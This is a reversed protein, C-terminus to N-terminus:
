NPVLVFYVVYRHIFKRDRIESSFESFVGSTACFISENAFSSNLLDMMPVPEPLDEGDSAGAEGLHTYGWSEEKTYNVFSM